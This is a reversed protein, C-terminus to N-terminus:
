KTIHLLLLRYPSSFFRFFFSFLISCHFFRSILRAWTSQAPPDRHMIEHTNVHRFAHKYKISRKSPVTDEVDYRTEDCWQKQGWASIVRRKDWKKSYKRIRNKKEAFTNEKRRYACAVRRGIRNHKRPKVHLFFVRHHIVHRWRACVWVLAHRVVKSTAWKIETFHKRKTTWRWKDTSQSNYAIMKRNEIEKQCQISALQTM